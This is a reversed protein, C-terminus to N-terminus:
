TIPQNMTELMIGWAGTVIATVVGALVPVMYDSFSSTRPQYSAFAIMLLIPGGHTILGVLLQLLIVGTNSGTEYATDISSAFGYGADGAFIASMIIFSAIGGIAAGLLNAGLQMDQVRVADSAKKICMGAIIIVALVALIAGAIVVVMAVAVLYAMYAMFGIGLLTAVASGASNDSM